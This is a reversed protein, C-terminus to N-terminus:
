DVHAVIEVGNLAMHYLFLHHLLEGDHPLAGIEKAAEVSLHFTEVCDAPVTVRYDLGRAHSRLRIDMALQYVCLDTCDGTVIFQDVEPHHELWGPLDTAIASSLSNKPFVRFQSAFLLARLERVTQSEITGAVCHAPWNAFEEADPAHTDQPLLFHQVDLEHAHVLLRRIPEVIRAIRPSALAGEHCMGETLDVTLVATQAPMRGGTALYEPLSVTKLGQRWEILFRLFPESGSGAAGPQRVFRDSGM